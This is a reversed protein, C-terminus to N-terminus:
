EAKLERTMLIDVAEKPNLGQYLVRYVTEVIPMEVKYKKALEYASDINDISEITMGIEKKAEEITYGKALLEGARRNRSHPSGCTVILDGLGTLGYFTKSEGGMAVGLRTIEVLGRTALMAFTNDGFELAKAAGACFAIINKM